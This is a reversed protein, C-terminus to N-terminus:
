RSAAQGHFTGPAAPPPAKTWSVTTGSASKANAAKATAVAKAANQM